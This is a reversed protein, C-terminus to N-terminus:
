DSHTFTSDNAIIDKKVIQKLVLNMQKRCYFICVVQTVFDMVMISNSYQYINRNVMVMHM